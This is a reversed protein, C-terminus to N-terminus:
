GAEGGASDAPQRAATLQDFCYYVALAAHVALTVVASVFSLGITFAYVLGGAGFRRLAARRV